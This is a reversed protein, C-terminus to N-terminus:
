QPLNELSETNEFFSGILDDHSLHTFRCRVTSCQEVAKSCKVKSTILLIIICKLSSLEKGGRKKAILTWQM